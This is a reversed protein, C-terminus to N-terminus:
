IVATLTEPFLMGLWSKRCGEKPGARRGSEPGGEGWHAPM